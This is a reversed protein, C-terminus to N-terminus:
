DGIGRQPQEEYEGQYDADYIICPVPNLSHATKAKPRGNEKM